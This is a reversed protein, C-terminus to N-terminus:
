TRESYIRGPQVSFLEVVSFYFENCSFPSFISSLSYLISDYLDIHAPITDIAFYKFKM